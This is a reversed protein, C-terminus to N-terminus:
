PRIHARKAPWAELRSLDIMEGTVKLHRVLESLVFRDSFEARYRMEFEVNRM